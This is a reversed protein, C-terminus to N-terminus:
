FLASLAECYIGHGYQGPHNVITIILEAWTKDKEDHAYMFAENVPAVAVGNTKGWNELAEAYKCSSFTVGDSDYTCLSSLPCAPMPTVAIVEASPANARIYNLMTTYNATYAAYDDADKYTENTGINQDNMGFAVTVLDPTYGDAFAQTLHSLGNNSRHGGVAYNVVDVTLGPYTEELWTKFRGSYTWEYGDRYGDAGTSISDGIVLYTLTDNNAAKTELLTKFDDSLPTNGNDAVFEKLYTSIAKNDTSVEVYDYTVYAVNGYTYYSALGSSVPTFAGANYQNELTYTARQDYDPIPNGAYPIRRIKGNEYDIEYDVGEVCETTQTAAVINEFDRGSPVFVKVSGEVINSYALDRWDNDTASSSENALLTGENLQNNLSAELSPDAFKGGLKTQYIDATQTEGYFYVTDGTETNTCIFYPRAMLWRYQMADTMSKIVASYQITRINKSADKKYYNVKTANVALLYKGTSLRNQIAMETGKGEAAALGAFTEEKDARMILFGFATVDYTTGDVVVTENDEGNLPFVGQAKFRLGRNGEVLHDDLRISSGMYSLTDTSLVRVGFEVDVTVDDNPKTFTFTDADVRTVEVEGFYAGTATVTNAQYGENSTTTVTVTDGEITIDFDGLTSNYTGKTVTYTEDHFVATVTVAENPMVFTNGALEVAAGSNATVYLDQLVYGANPTATITVTQGFYATANDVAVTGNSAAAINVNNLVSKHYMVSDITVTDSTATGLTTITLKFNATSAPSAIPDATSVKLTNGDAVVKTDVALNAVSWYADVKGVLDPDVTLTATAYTAYSPNFAVSAVSNPDTVSLVGDNDTVNVLTGPTVAVGAAARQASAVQKGEFRVVRFDTGNATTGAVKLYRSGAPIDAPDCPTFAYSEYGWRGKETRYGFEYKTEIQTYKADDDEAAVYFRIDIDEPNNITSAYVRFNELSEFDYVVFGDSNADLPRFYRYGGIDAATDLNGACNFLRNRRTINMEDMIRLTSLDYAKLNTDDSTYSLGMFQVDEKLSDAPQIIEFKVYDGLATPDDPTYLYSTWETATTAGALKGATRSMAVETYYEASDTDATYAKITTNSDSGEFNFQASFDTAGVTRYAFSTVYNVDPKYGLDYAYLAFAAQNFSENAPAAIAFRIYHMGSPIDQGPLLSLTYGKAWVSTTQKRVTQLTIADGSAFDDYSAAVSVTVAVNNVDTYYFTADAIDKDASYFTAYADGAVQKRLNVNVPSQATNVNANTVCKFNAAAKVPDNFDSNSYANERWLSRNTKLYEATISDYEIEDEVPYVKVGFQFTHFNFHSANFSPENVAAFTIRAYHMGDPINTDTIVTEYTKTWTTVGTIQNTAVDVSVANGAEYDEYSAALEIGINYTYSPNTSFRFKGGYIDYPSYFTAYADGASLKVLNYRSPTLEFHDSGNVVMRLNSASADTSTTYECWIDNNNYVEAMSNAKLYYCTDECVYDFQAIQYAYNPDETRPKTFEFKLYRDTKEIETYDAPEYVYSRWGPTWDPNAVRSVSIERYEGDQADSVYFKMAGASPERYVFMYMKFQVINEKLVATGGITEETGDSSYGYPNTSVTAGNSFYSVKSTGTADVIDQGVTSNDVVVSYSANNPRAMPIGYSGGVAAADSGNGTVWANDSSVAETGYTGGNAYVDYLGSVADAGAGAASAFLSLGGVYVTTVLMVMALTFAFIRKKM